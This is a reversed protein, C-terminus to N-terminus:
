AAQPTNDAGGSGSTNGNGGNGGAGGNGGQAASQALRHKFSYKERSFIGRLVVAIAMSVAMVLWGWTYTGTADYINGVLMGGFAGGISIFINTFTIFPALNKEGFMHTMLLPSIINVAPCGFAYCLVLVVIMWTAKPVLMIAIFAFVFIITTAVAGGFLKKRDCYAGWVISGITLLGVCASFAGAAVDPNVGDLTLCAITHQLISSSALCIFTASLFALWTSPKKKMEKFTLGPLDDEKAKMAALEEPSYEGMRKVGKKQPSWSALFGILVCCAALAVAIVIYGARWGSTQVVATLVWTMVMTGITTGMFMLSLAVGKVKPGFWNSIL